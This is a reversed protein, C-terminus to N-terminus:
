PKGGEMFWYWSFWCVVGVMFAIIWSYVGAIALLAYSALTAAIFVYALRSMYFIHIGNVKPLPLLQYIMMVGNIMAAYAFTEPLIHLQKSLALFITMLILHGVAGAAAITGQAMINIGHRWKGLRLIMIYHVFLGGHLIVFFKGQTLFTVILGIALGTPWMRYEARFGQHLAAVKMAADYGLLSIAVFVFTLMFNGFWHAWSIWEPARDSYAFMFTVALISIFIDRAERPEWRYFQRIRYALEGM